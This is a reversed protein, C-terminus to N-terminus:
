NCNREVRLVFDQWILRHVQGQQVNILAKPFLVVICIGGKHRASPYIIGNYRKQIALAALVNGAEYAIAEDPNLCAENLDVATLDILNGTVSAILEAYEVSTNGTNTAKLEKEIHYSVECLATDLALASYWAGRLPGNFRNLASPKAYVFAANVFKHNPVSAPLMDEPKLEPLGTKAHSLRNSTVGEILALLEIEDINEGVLQKLVPERLRASSVLRITRGIGGTQTPLHDVM